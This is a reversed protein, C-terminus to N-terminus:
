VYIEICLRLFISNNQSAGPSTDECAGVGAIGFISLSEHLCSDPSAEFTYKAAFACFFPTTKPSALAQTKVLGLV